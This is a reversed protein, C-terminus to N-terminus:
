KITVTGRGTETCAGSSCIRIKYKSTIDQPEDHTRYQGKALSFEYENTYLSTYYAAYCDVDIYNKNSTNIAYFQAKTSLGVEGSTVCSKGYTLSVSASTAWASVFPMGLFMVLMSSVFITTLKKLM